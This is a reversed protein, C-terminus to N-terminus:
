VSEQKLKNDLFWGMGTGTGDPNGDKDVSQAARTVNQQGGEAFTDFDQAELVVSRTWKSQDSTFIIDVSQLEDIM